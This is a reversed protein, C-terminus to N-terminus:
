FNLTLRSYIYRGDFGFPTLGSFQFIGFNSSPQLTRDPYVDFLNNVGVAFRTGTAVERSIELDTIFKESYVQDLDPNSTHYSKYEGFRNVRILVDWADRSVSISSQVSSSPQGEEYRGQEVRGFLPVSTYQALAAPTTIEDKNTIETQTINAGLTTRITYDEVQVAYRAIIDIGTTRSDVANTFYRGGTANVGQTALFSQLTGGPGSGTFNESVVVRDTISIDYYDATLSFNGRQFTVGGSINVSKEAELDIAGLARAASSTVPFTGVEFPVGNIFNTSVASFYSQALSPARFGTSVAGRVALGEIFEYRGSVKGTFISGFDSYNEFRLAAAMLLQSTIDNEVDVYLGVNTREEDTANRPTFGPFVQAGPAKGAVPGAVFSPAEGAEIQYNEYRFEAGMAVTMPSATGIEVTRVMDFNTSAQTFILAGAYFKSPSTPGFSANLSKNVGFELRNRGITESVDYNWEGITGRVGTAVSFDSINTEIHPLFGDPYIELTNRADLARRYFGAASGQRNSLGGFAYWTKDDSIDYEANYFLSLDQLEASGYKHNVRNFTAERPDNATPYQQRPDLGARNTPDQNRFQGAIYFNGREGLDGGYGLHLSLSKGDTYTVKDDLFQSNGAWSQPTGNVPLAENTKYGRQTVSYNQGYTMSADLGNDKKLVINIVGAIADSGYQAAAGDRLVEIREIMNSPIANLDVGTAGRGVSGNLHVLASTHRRKGNVLVLVQDPGLGRLTAPNVHDTGDTVSSKPSNFSPVLQRIIATTQMYGFQELEVGSIVDVPVTSQIVTRETSRTGLVIIDDAGILDPNLDFDVNVTQGAIVTVSQRLPAYGVFTARLQYTGAQLTLSYAGELNATAGRTQGVVSVNAGTLVEGNAADRVIGTVTGTAQAMLDITTVFLLLTFVLSFARVRYYSEKM